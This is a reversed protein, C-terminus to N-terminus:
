WAHGAERGIYLMRLYRLARRKAGFGTFRALERGNTLSVAWGREIPKLILALASM